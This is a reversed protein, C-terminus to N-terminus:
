DLFKFCKLFFLRLMCTSFKHLIGLVNFGLFLSRPENLLIYLNHIGWMSEWSVNRERGFLLRLFEGHPFVHRALDFSRVESIIQSLAESQMYDSVFRHPRPLYGHILSLM